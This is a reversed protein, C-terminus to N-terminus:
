AIRELVPSPEDAAQEGIVYATRLAVAARDAAAETRAHVLALPADAGGVEGGIGAFRTFGVAHDILDTTRMRGGGLEVVAIGVARTDISQVFGPLPASVPQIVPAAVLHKEPKEVLDAPGGHAAVM